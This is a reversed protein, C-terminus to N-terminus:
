HPLTDRLTAIEARLEVRIRDRRAEVEEPLWGRGQASRDTLAGVGSGLLLSGVVLSLAAAMAPWSVLSGRATVSPIQEVEGPEVIMIQQRSLLESIADYTMYEGLPSVVCIEELTRRGDVLGLAAVCDRPLPQTEADQVRAFVLDPALMSEKLTLLEDNRRMSELLLEEPSLKLTIGQRPLSKEDGSFEYTGNRWEVVDDIIRQTYRRMEELMRDRGVVGSTVMVTFLDQGTARCIDEVSELQDQTLLMNNMLYALFTHRGDQRRDAAALIRGHEFFLVQSQDRGDTLSLVGSKQQLALLQLIEAVSFESLNGLIAM